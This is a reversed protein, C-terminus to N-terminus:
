SLGKWLGEKRSSRTNHARGGAQEDTTGQTAKSVGGKVGLGSVGGGGGGSSGGGRNGGEGGVRSGETRGPSGLGAGVLGERSLAGAARDGGLGGVGVPGGVPVM